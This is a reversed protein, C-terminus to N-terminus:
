KTMFNRLSDLTESYNPSKPINDTISELINTLKDFRRSNRIIKTKVLINSFKKSRKHVLVKKCLNLNLPNRRSYEM